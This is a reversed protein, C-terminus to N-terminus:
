VHGRGGASGLEGKVNGGTVLCKMSGWGSGPGPRRAPQSQRSAGEPDGGGGAASAPAGKGRAAGPPGAGADENTWM